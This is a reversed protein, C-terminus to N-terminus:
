CTSQIQSMQPFLSYDQQFYFRGGPRCRSSPVGRGDAMLLCRVGDGIKGRVAGGDEDM